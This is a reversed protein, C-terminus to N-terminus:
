QLLQFSAVMGDFTKVTNPFALEHDLLTFEYLVDERRGRKLILVIKGRAGRTIRPRAEEREIRRKRMAQTEPGFKEEREGSLIEEEIRRREAVEDIVPRSLGGRLQFELRPHGNQSQLTWVKELPLFQEDKVARMNNGWGGLIERYIRRGHDALEFHKYRFSLPLARVMMVGGTYPNHFVHDGMLGIEAFTSQGRGPVWPAPPKRVRYYWISEIFEETKAACSVTLLGSMLCVAVRFSQGRGVQRRAHPGATSWFKM